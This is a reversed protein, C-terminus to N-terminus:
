VALTFCINNVFFVSYTVHLFLLQILKGDLSVLFTIYLISIAILSGLEEHCFIGGDSPIGKLFKFHTAMKYKWDCNVVTDSESSFSISRFITCSDSTSFSMVVSCFCSSALTYRSIQAVKGSSM